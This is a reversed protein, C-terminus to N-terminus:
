CVKFKKPACALFTAPAQWSTRSGIVKEQNKTEKEDFSAGFKSRPFFFLLNNSTDHKKKKSGWAYSRKLEEL